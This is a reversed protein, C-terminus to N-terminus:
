TCWASRSQRSHQTPPEGWLPPPGAHRCRIVVLKIPAPVAAQDM